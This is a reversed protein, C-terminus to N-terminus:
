AGQWRSKHQGKRESKYYDLKEKFLGHNLCIIIPFDYELESVQIFYGFFFM